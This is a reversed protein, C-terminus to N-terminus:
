AERQTKCFAEFGEGKHSNSLVYRVLHPEGAVIYSHSLKLFAAGIAQRTLDTVDFVGAIDYHAVPM